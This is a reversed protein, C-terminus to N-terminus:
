PQFSKVEQELEEFTFSQEYFKSKDNKYIITAPIAGSWNEDIKPIWKNGDPEKLFIVNSKLQNERIFPILDSEIKTSFDLSVLTIDIQPYTEGLQEFYPLEAVCPICWTAWFNVVHVQNDKRELFPEFSEFDYVEVAITDAQIVEIPVPKFEPIKEVEEKPSFNCSVLFAVTLFSLHSLRIM